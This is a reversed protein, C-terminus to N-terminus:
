NNKPNTDHIPRTTKVIREDVVAEYQKRGLGEPEKISQVVQDAM